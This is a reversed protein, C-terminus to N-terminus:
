ALLKHRIGCQFGVSLGDVFSQEYRLVAFGHPLFAAASFFHLIHGIHEHDPGTFTYWVTRFAPSERNKHSDPVCQGRYVM